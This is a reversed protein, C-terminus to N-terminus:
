PHSEENLVLPTHVMSQNQEPKLDVGLRYGQVSTMWNARPRLDNIVVAEAAHNAAPYKQRAAIIAVDRANDDLKYKEHLRQHHEAQAPNDLMQYILYLGYHAMENESDIQLTKQYHGIAEDILRGRTEDGVPYQKALDFLTEALQNIVRYDLSFDFKRAQAAPSTFELALQFNQAAASLNGQQRNVLGTLWAHTWYPFPDKPGGDGKLLNARQLAQTALDLSGESEYIRALNLPGDFRGLQEVQQFAYEAQRLEGRARVSEATIMLAIGYDNWRMWADPQAPLDGPRAGAAVMETPGPQVPFTVQDNALITIPLENVVLGDERLGRLPINRQRHFEHIHRLYEWDFKRYNLKAIVTISGTADEPVTLRYHSIQAAGPPIQRNYLPTFIDQANRRNIRNGNRDLMFVNVFHAWPDVEGKNDLGGMTGLVRGGELQGDASFRANEVATLELWVENSDVTGQTFLHGMKVTRIVTEILYSHGAALTPVQQGIPAHLTGDIRGDEKIGFIDVRMVGQLYDQHAQITAEDGNWWAIATNASPFLHNHVETKGTLSNLIAGFDDSEKRPMHCENCNLEATPPYYFSSLGHGSVGSLLYPDYHNQGRLWEKYGNLEGPLHVKHCTACFEASKHMPKLFMQKHFAPKAKILQHNIWKLVPNDSFAFPYHIPEEISYDANGVVNGQEDGVSTISHCVVCTIGAHATPDKVIDFNPDDFKGSFFPVPDHCGACWRSAKISGDRELAVRRTEEVSTLYAPNNFSSFHHVSHYHDRHVDGHCDLCYQDNMLAHEPIFSGGRTRVLSPEFYDKSKPSGVAQFDRPDQLRLVMLGGMVVAVAAAYSLGVRWKIPPGALRHIIYLWVVALPSIVHAWYILVRLQSDQLKPLGDVRFLLVGSVLLVTCVALLGYGVRVAMRNKRKRTAILHFYAFAMFPLLLLLGLALHLLVMWQYFHDQLGKGTISELLTIGALYVSNASLLAFLVFVIMLVVRLRPTVAPVYKKKVRHAPRAPEIAESM